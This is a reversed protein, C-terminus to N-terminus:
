NGARKNAKGAIFADVRRFHEENAWFGSFTKVEEGIAAGIDPGKAKSAGDKYARIMRRDSKGAIDHALKKTSDLIRDSPIVDDVLRYEMATRADILKHSSLWLLATSEGVINVLRTLGGWGPPLYFRGQTLGLRAHAATIRIDFALAIEVGGGYADGNLCAITICPLETLRRLLTIMKQSMTRAEEESRITHFEKLDGGAAFAKDGTATLVFVRLEEDQELRTVAQELGDMVAYNIANNAEPRDIEAWMVPGDVNINFESM